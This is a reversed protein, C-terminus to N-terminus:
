RMLICSEIFNEWSTFVFATQCSDFAFTANGSALIESFALLVSNQLFHTLTDIM